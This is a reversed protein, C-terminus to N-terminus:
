CNPVGPTGANLFGVGVFTFGSGRPSYVKRAAKFIRDRNSDFAVLFEEETLGPCPSASHVSNDLLATTRLASTTPAGRGREEM